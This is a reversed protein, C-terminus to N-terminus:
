KKEEAPVDSGNEAAKEAAKLTEAEIEVKKQVLRKGLEFTIAKLFPFVKAFEKDTMDKLPKKSFIAKGFDILDDKTWKPSVLADWLSLMLFKTEEPTMESEPPPDSSKTEKTAEAAEAPAADPENSM